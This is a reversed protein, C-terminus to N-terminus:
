PLKRKPQEIVWSDISVQQGVNISTNDLIMGGGQGPLSVTDQVVVGGTSDKARFHGADGQAVASPDATITNAVARAVDGVDASPGFAPDSLVLTALLTGQDAVDASAPPLGTFIEVRGAAPGGDLRDVLANNMDAASAAPLRLDPM